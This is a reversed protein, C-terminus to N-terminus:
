WYTYNPVSWLATTSQTLLYTLLSVINVHARFSATLNAYDVARSLIFISFIVLFSFRNVLTILGTWYLGLICDLHYPLPLNPLFPNIFPLYKGHQTTLTM